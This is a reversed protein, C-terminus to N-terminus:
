RVDRLPSDASTVGSIFRSLLCDQGRDDEWLVTTASSSDSPRFRCSVVWSSAPSQSCWTYVGSVVVIIHCGGGGARWVRRGWDDRMLKSFSLMLLLSLSFLLLLLVLVVRKWFNCGFLGYQQQNTWSLSAVICATGKRSLTYKIMTALGVRACSWFFLCLFFM